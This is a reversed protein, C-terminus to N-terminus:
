NSRIRSSTPEKSRTKQLLPRIKLYKLFHACAYLIPANGDGWRKPIVTKVSISITEKRFIANVGAMSDSTDLLLQTRIKDRSSEYRNKRIRKIQNIMKEYNLTALETVRHATCIFDHHMYM